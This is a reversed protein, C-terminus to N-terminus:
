KLESFPVYLAQPLQYQQPYTVAVLYLGHPPFTVGAITRDRAQLVEEVWSVPQKKIGVKILVGVINRVMNYLFANAIIDIIIFDGYRRITIQQMDRMPTRSQCGSARFSSFDHQGILSFAAQQMLEADLKIPYWATRQRLIASRQRRNYIVYRYHRALASRRADFSDAVEKAWIVSVGKNLYSNCGFVWNNEDRQVTTDFHVVQGVAHVGSDTRGAVYTKVPQTAVKHLAKEVVAQVTIGNAQEQWGCFAAGDYEIGMAIRM